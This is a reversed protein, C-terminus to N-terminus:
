DWQVGKAYAAFDNGAIPYFRVRHGPRLRPQGDEALMPWPCRGILQWGGPGPAPYVGTQRGALGVAGAPVRQRPQMRRPVELAAETQGLFAFGPRFGLLYVLYETAAHRATVEDPSLGSSRAVSELDPGYGGGYAVPLRHLPADIIAGDAPRLDYVHDRLAQMSLQRRDFTCLLSAYGPVCESVGRLKRLAAAFAHVGRSIGPDIRAEWELLLGDTGYPRIDRPLRM